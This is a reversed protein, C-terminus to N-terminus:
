KIPPKGAWTSYPAEWGWTIFSPKGAWTSFPAEWGWTIISPKGGLYHILLKGGRQSSHHSGLGFLKGAGHTSHHNSATLPGELCNADVGVSYQRCQRWSQVWDQYSKGRGKATTQYMFRLQDRQDRTNRDLHSGGNGGGYSSPKQAPANGPMMAFYLQSRFRFWDM